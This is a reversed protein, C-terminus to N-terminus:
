DLIQARVKLKTRRHEALRHQYLAHFPDDPRIFCCLHVNDKPHALFWEERKTGGKLSLGQAVLDLIVVIAMPVNKMRCPVGPIRAQPLTKFDTVSHLYHAHHPNEPKLFSYEKIDKKNPPIKNRLRNSNTGLWKM